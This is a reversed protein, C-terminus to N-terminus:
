GPRRIAVVRWRDGVRRLDVVVQTAEGDVDVGVTVTSSAGRTATDDVTADTVDAPNVEGALCATMPSPLDADDALLSGLDGCDDDAFAQMVVLAVQDPGPPGPAAPSEDRTVLAVFTVLDVVAVLPVAVLLVTRWRGLVWPGGM